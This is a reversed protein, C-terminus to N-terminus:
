SLKIGVHLFNYNNINKSSYVYILLAVKQTCEISYRFLMLTLLKDLQNFTTLYYRYELTRFTRSSCLCDSILIDFWFLLTTLVDDTDDDDDDPLSLLLLVSCQYFSTRRHSTTILQSQRVLDISLRSQECVAAADISGTLVLVGTRQASGGTRAPDRSLGSM